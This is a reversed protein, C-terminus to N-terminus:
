QINVIQIERGLMASEYIGNLIRIMDVGESPKFLPEAGDILVDKFFHKINASHGSKVAQPINLAPKIDTLEGFAESYITLEGSVMKIGAKSGRLEVFSMEREINSAWSVEIQLVSGNDFRIMGIALDEVDFIGDQKAEGFNANESDPNASNGTFYNYTAGSVAVPAPNGMMWVALDIMHVGLDILPGGGSLAKTTFWGGKGPVGRRRIWGCRGAYLAGCNGEAIYKKAYIAGPNFRNNRMVMLRKGAKEAAAKMAIAQQVTMADPKECFVHKGANLAEIAVISHLYNPACIDIADIDTRAILEKYDTTIFTAGCKAASTVAREEIIDCVAAVDVGEIEILAPIHKGNAIGGCGVLGVKLKKM